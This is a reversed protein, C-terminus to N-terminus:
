RHSTPRATRPAPISAVDHRAVSLKSSTRVHRRLLTTGLAIPNLGVVRGVQGAFRELASIRLFPRASGSPRWGAPPGVQFFRHLRTQAPFQQGTRPLTCSPSRVHYPEARAAASHTTATTRTPARPDAGGHFPGSAPGIHQRQTAASPFRSIVTSRTSLPVPMPPGEGM